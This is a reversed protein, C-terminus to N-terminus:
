AALRREERVQQEAERREVVDRERECEDVGAGTCESLYVPDRELGALRGIYRHHRLIYAIERQLPTM